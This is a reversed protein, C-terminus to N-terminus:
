ESTFTFLRCWVECSFFFMWIINISSALSHPIFNRFLSSFIWFECDIVVLVFGRAICVVVFFIFLYRSKSIKKLYKTILARKFLAISTKQKTRKSTRAYTSKRENESRPSSWKNVKVLPFFFWCLIQQFYVHERAYVRTISQTYWTLHRHHIVSRHARQIHCLGVKCCISNNKNNGMSKASLLSQRAKSQKAWSKARNQKKAKSQEARSQKVRSQDARSWWQKTKNMWICNRRLETTWDAAM